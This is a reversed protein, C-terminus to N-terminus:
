NVGRQTTPRVDVVLRDVDKGVENRRDYEQVALERELLIKGTSVRPDSSGVENSEGDVHERGDSTQRHRRLIVSQQVVGLMHFM